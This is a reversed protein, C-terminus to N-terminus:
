GEVAPWPVGLEGALKAIARAETPASMTSGLPLMVINYDGTRQVRWASAWWMELAIGYSDDQHITHVQVKAVRALDASPTHRAIVTM